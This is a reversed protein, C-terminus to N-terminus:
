HGGGGKRRKKRFCCTLLSLSSSYTMTISLLRFVYRSEEDDKNHRENTYHPRKKPKIPKYGKNTKCLIYYKKLYTGIM